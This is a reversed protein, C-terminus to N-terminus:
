DDGRCGAFSVNGGAFEVIRFDGYDETRGFRGVPVIGASVQLIGGFEM